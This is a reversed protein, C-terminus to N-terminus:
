GVGNLQEDIFIRLRERDIRYLRGVKYAPLKGEKCMKSCSARNLGLLIAVEEVNLSLPLLSWERFTRDTRTKKM